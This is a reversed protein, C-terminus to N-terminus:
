CKERYIDSHFIKTCFREFNQCADNSAEGHLFFLNMFLHMSKFEFNPLYTKNEYLFNNWFTIFVLKNSILTFYKFLKSIFRAESNQLRPNYAM